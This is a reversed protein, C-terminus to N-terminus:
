VPYLSVLARWGTAETSMPGAEDRFSFRGYGLGAGVFPVFGYLDVDFFKLAELLGVDQSTSM